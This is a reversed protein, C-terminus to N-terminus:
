GRFPVCIQVPNESVCVPPKILIDRKSVPAADLRFIPAFQGFDISCTRSANFFSLTKAHIPARAAVKGPRGPGIAGV